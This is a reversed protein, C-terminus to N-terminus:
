TLFKLTNVYAPPSPFPKAAAQEIVVAYRKM